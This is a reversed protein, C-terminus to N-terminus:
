SRSGEARRPAPMLLRCAGPESFPLLEAQQAPAGWEKLAGQVIGLHVGCVVDPHSRAAELLPCRTLRVASARSLPEPAFGLDALLGVVRHRADAASLPTAVSSRGALASGWRRGADVGDARPNDSHQDISAALVSALAAYESMGSGPVAEYLTAPRGRGSPAARHRRVRGSSELGALHDRLTNPHLSTAESLAALGMPASRQALVDLVAARVGSLPPRAAAPDAPRPGLVPETSPNNKM